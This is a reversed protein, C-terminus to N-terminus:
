WLSAKGFAMHGRCDRKCVLLMKDRKVECAKWAATGTYGMREQAAVAETDVFGNGIATFKDWSNIQEEPKRHAKIWLDECVHKASSSLGAVRSAAAHM